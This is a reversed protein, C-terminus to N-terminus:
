RVSKIQPRLIQCICIYKVPVAGQEGEKFGAQGVLHEGNLGSGGSTDEASM